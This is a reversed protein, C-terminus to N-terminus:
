NVYSPGFYDAGVDFYSQATLNAEYRAGHHYARELYAECQSADSGSYYWAMWIEAPAYNVAAAQKMYDLRRTEDSTANGLVCAAELYGRNYCDQAMPLARDSDGLVALCLALECKGRYSGGNVAQQFYNLAGNIDREAGTLLSNYYILGWYYNGWASGKAVAQDLLATGEDSNQCFLNVYGEAALIDPNEQDPYGRLVELAEEAQDSGAMQVALDNLAAVSGDEAAEKLLADAQSADPTVGVGARTFLSRQYAADPDKSQELYEICEALSEESGTAIYDEFCAMGVEYRARDSGRDLAQALMEDALEEDAPVGSGTRYCQSLRYTADANGMKHAQLFAEVATEYDGDALAETGQQYYKQGQTHLLLTGGGVLAVLVVLFLVVLTRVMEGKAAMGKKVTDERLAMRNGCVPCNAIISIDDEPLEGAAMMGGNPYLMLEGIKQNHRCHACRLTIKDPLYLQIPEFYAGAQQTAQKRKEQITDLVYAKKNQKMPM